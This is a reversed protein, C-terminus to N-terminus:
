SAALIFKVKELQLRSSIIQQEDQYQTGQVSIIFWVSEFYNKSPYFIKCMRLTQNTKNMNKVIHIMKCGVRELMFDINKLTITSKDIKSMTEMSKVVNSNSVIDVQVDEQRDDDLSHYQFISNPQIKKFKSKNGGM